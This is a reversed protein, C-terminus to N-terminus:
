IAGQTGKLKKLKIKLKGAPKILKTPKTSMAADGIRTCFDLFQRQEEVSLVGDIRESLKAVSPLMSQYTDLGLGTRVFLRARKDTPSPGSSILGRSEMKSLVRSLQGQETRTFNALEKQTVKAKIAMGMLVRWGVLGLSGHRDLVQGKQKHLLRSLRYVAVSLLSTGDPIKDLQIGQLAQTPQM